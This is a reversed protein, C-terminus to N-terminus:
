LELRDRTQKGLVWLPFDVFCVVRFKKQVDLVGIRVGRNNM